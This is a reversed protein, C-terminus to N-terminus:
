ALTALDEIIGFIRSKQVTAADVKLLMAMTIRAIAVMHCRPM